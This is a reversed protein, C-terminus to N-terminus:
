EDQKKQPRLVIEMGRSSFIKLLVMLEDITVDTIRVCDAYDDEIVNEGIFVTFLTDDM